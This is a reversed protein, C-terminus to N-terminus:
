SGMATSPKVGVGGDVSPLLIARAFSLPIVCDIESSGVCGGAELECASSVSSFPRLFEASAMSGAASRIFRVGCPLKRTM